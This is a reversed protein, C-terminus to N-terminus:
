DDDLALQDVLDALTIRHSALTARMRSVIEERSPGYFPDREVEHIAKECVAIENRFWQIEVLLESSV